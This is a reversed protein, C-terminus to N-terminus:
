IKIRSISLTNMHNFNEGEKIKLGATLPFCKSVAELSIFFLNQKSYNDTVSPLNGFPKRYFVLPTNLNFLAHKRNL